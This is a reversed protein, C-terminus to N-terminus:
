KERQQPTHSPVTTSDLVASATRSAAAEAKLLSTGRTSLYDMIRMEGHTDLLADVKRYDELTTGKMLPYDKGNVTVTPGSERLNIEETATSPVLSFSNGISVAIRDSEEPRPEEQRTDSLWDVTEEYTGMAEMAWPAVKAFPYTCYGSHCSEGTFTIIGAGVLANILEKSNNNTDIIVNGEIACWSAAYPDNPLNVTINGWPSLYDGRAPDTADLASIALGGGMAYSDKCLAIICRERDWDEFELMAANGDIGM